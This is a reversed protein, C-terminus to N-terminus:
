KSLQSGLLWPNRLADTATLRDSPDAALLSKVFAVGEDDVRSSRLIETPFEIRGRCYDSLHSMDTQCESRLETHQGFVIWEPDTFPAESTLM